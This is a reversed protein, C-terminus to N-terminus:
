LFGLITLVRRAVVVIFFLVGVYIMLDMREGIQPKVYSTSLERCILLGILISIGYLELNRPGILLLALVSWLTMSGALKQSFTM